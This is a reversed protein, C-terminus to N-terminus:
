GHNRWNIFEKAFYSLIVQAGARKIAVLTENILENKDILGTKAVEQIMQYEGSVQYAFVPSSLKECLKAIIDLNTIAPKVMVIDAGEQIDLEAELLAEKFSRNVAQQYSKRDGKLTVKVAGRFPGYLVSAYKVGYSLIGVNQYGSEDLAERIAKVQGDMMGSPSVFDAGAAAQTVAIKQYLKLTQDNDIEGAATVVGCQGDLRYEDLCLDTFVVVDDGFSKKIAKLSRSVIGNEDFAGSGDEDKTGTVGFLMFAKIGLEKAQEIENILSEVSHWYIDNMSPIEKPESIDDAVFVPLILDNEKIDIDAVLERIAKSRRLRRLRQYPFGM